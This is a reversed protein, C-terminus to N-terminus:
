RFREKGREQEEPNLAYQPHMTKYGKISSNRRNDALGEQGLRAREKLRYALSFSQQAHAWEL